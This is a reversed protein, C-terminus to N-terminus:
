HYSTEDTITENNQFTGTITKLALTGTTGADNDTVIVGTAGSTGGTITLGTAFNGTQGDYNLSVGTGTIYIFNNYYSAGSASNGEVTGILTESGLVSSYSILRGNNLVTYVLSDKPNTIIAIPAGTVNAGSFESYPNPTVVGSMKPASTVQNTSMDPDMGRSFNFQGSSAFNESTQWGNIISDITVTLKRSM